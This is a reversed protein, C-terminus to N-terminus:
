TVVLIGSGSSAAPLSCDYGAQIRRHAYPAYSSECVNVVNGNQCPNNTSPSVSVHLSTDQRSLLPEMLRPEAARTLGSNIVSRPDGWRSDSSCSIVIVMVVVVVM